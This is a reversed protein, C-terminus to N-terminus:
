TKWYRFEESLKGLCVRPGDGFAYYLGKDKYMKLGGDMFREPEFVDVNKYNNEDTMIAHIPLVVKSGVPVHLINGDKNVLDISETCLKISHSGPPFIRLTEIYFSIFNHIKTKLINRIIYTLNGHICADLYELDMITDFDNDHGLKELIEKRLKDQKDAHRGM